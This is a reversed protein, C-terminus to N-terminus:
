WYYTHPKKSIPWLAADADIEGRLIKGEVAATRRRHPRRHHLSDWWSPWWCM